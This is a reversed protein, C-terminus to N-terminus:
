HDGYLEIKLNVKFAQSTENVLLEHRNPYVIALRKKVNEIGIGGVEDKVGPVESKSNEIEFLVSDADAHIKMRIFVDKIKEINGHKLANEMFPIFLMPAIKINQNGV